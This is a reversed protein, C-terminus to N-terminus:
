LSGLREDGLSGDLRGELERECCWPNVYTSVKKMDDLFYIFLFASPQAGKCILRYYNTTQGLRGRLCAVVANVRQAFRAQM